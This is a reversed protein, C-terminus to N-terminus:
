DTLMSVITDFMKQNAYNTKSLPLYSTILEDMDILTGAIISETTEHPLNEAIYNFYELSSMEMDEVGMYMNAWLSAHMVNEEIMSIPTEMLNKKSVPDLRYKVYANENFNLLVIKVGPGVKKLKDEPVVTENQARVIVNPVVVKKMDGDYFAVDM